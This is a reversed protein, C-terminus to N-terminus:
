CPLCSRFNNCEHYLSLVQLMILRCCLKMNEHCNHQVQCVATTFHIAWEADGDMSPGLSIRFGLVGKASNVHQPKALIRSLGMFLLAFAHLAGCMAVHATGWVVSQIALM